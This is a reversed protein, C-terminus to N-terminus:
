ESLRSCARVQGPLRGVARWLLPWKLEVLFNQSSHGDTLSAWLLSANHGTGNRTSPDQRTLPWSRLEGMVLGKLSIRQGIGLDTPVSLWLYHVLSEQAPRCGVNQRGWYGCHTALGDKQCFEWMSGGPLEAPWRGAKQSDKESDTWEGTRRPPSIPKLTWTERTQDSENRSLLFVGSQM